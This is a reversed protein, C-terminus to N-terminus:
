SIFNAFIIMIPFNHSEVQMLYENIKGYFSMEEKGIGMSLFVHTQIEM